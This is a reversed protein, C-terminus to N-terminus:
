SFEKQLDELAVFQEGAEKAQLAERTRKNVYDIFWREERLKLFEVFALVENLKREPLSSISELLIEKGKKRQGMKNAGKM